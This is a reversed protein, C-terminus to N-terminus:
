VIVFTLAVDSMHHAFRRSIQLAFWVFCCLVFCCLSLYVFKLFTSLANSTIEFTCALLIWLFIYREELEELKLITVTYQSKPRELVKTRMSMLGTTNESGMRVMVCSVLRNLFRYYELTKLGLSFYREHLPTKITFNEEVLLLVHPFSREHGQVHPFKTLSKHLCFGLPSCDELKPLSWKLILRTFVNARTPPLSQHHSQSLSQPNVGVVAGSLYSHLELGLKCPEMSYMNTRSWSSCLFSSDVLYSPKQACVATVPLCWHTLDLLSSRNARIVFEQFILKALNASYGPTPNLCFCRVGVNGRRIWLTTMSGLCVRTM